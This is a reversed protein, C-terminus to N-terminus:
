LYIGKRYLVIALSIRFFPSGSHSQDFIVNILLLQPVKARFQVLQGGRQVDFTRLLLGRTQLVLGGLVAEPIVQFARLLHLHPELLELVLHGPLLLQDGGPLVQRGQTLHSLLFIVGIDQLLQFALKGLQFLPHLFGPHGGQEGTLIVVGVGNQLEVGTGAAGLGLVPSLHEVAHIGAPSLAVAKDVFNQVVLFAVLCADLGGGDGDLALVGIAKQLTLVADVPQDPYRGKIGVGAALGGEGGDLHHRLQLVVVGHLNTLFVNFHLDVPSGAGAALVDILGGGGDTQDVLGRADHHGGLLFAALELVLVVAHLHQSGLQQLQFGLLM